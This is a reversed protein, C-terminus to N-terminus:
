KKKEFTSIQEYIKIIKRITYCMRYFMKIIESNKNYKKEQDTAYRAKVAHIDLNIGIIVIYFICLMLVFIHMILQPTLIEKVGSSVMKFIMEQDKEPINYGRKEILVSGMTEVMTEFDLAMEEKIEDELSIVYALIEDFIELFFDLVENDLVITQNEDRTELQQILKEIMKLVFEVFDNEITKSIFQLIQKVKKL